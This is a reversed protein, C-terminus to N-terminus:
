SDISDCHSCCYIGDVPWGCARCPRITPCFKFALEIRAKAYQAATPPKPKKAVAKQPKVKTEATQM